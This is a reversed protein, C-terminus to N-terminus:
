VFSPPAPPAVPQVDGLGFVREYAVALAAFGIPLVLFAGVYCFLIGVTNLLTTLFMMALLGWFNALGARMSLKVANIGSLRRDVILPYTFAFLISVVIVLVMVVLWLVLFAGVFGLIALPTLNANGTLLTLFMGLYLGVIVLYTPVLILILPVIHILTAIVADGFYDFGKFLTGFEIPQRRMTMFLALYLGCMMPGMVIGLPVVAGIIIGVACMGVFLWYQQKIVEFGAKICEIPQVANRKFEIQNFPFSM